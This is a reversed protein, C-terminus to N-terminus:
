VNDFHTARQLQYLGKYKVAGTGLLRGEELKYVRAMKSLNDYRHTIFIVTKGKLKNKLIEYLYKDSEVDYGSTAEDLIIIPADKIMARAVALKQKEGGSLRAGNRGIM